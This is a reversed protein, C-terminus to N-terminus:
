RAWDADDNGRISFVYDNAIAQEFGSRFPKYESNTSQMVLYEPPDIALVFGESWRGKWTVYRGNSIAECIAEFTVNNEM